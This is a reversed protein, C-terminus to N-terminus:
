VFKIKSSNIKAFEWYELLEINFSKVSGLIGNKKKRTVM